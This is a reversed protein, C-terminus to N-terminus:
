LKVDVLERCNKVIAFDNLSNTPMGGEVAEVFSLMRTMM